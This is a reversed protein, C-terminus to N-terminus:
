NITLEAVHGCERCRLRYRGRLPGRGRGIPRLMELISGLPLRGLAGSPVLVTDPSDCKPCPPGSVAM